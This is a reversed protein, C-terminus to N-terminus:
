LLATRGADTLEAVIAVFRGDQGSLGILRSAGEDISILGKAKLSYLMRVVDHDFARYAAQTGGEPRFTHRGGAKRLTVLVDREVHTVIAM